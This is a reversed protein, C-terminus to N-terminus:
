RKSRAQAANQLSSHLSSHPTGGPSARSPRGSMFSAYDKLPHLAWSQFPMSAPGLVPVHVEVESVNEPARVLRARVLLKKLAPLLSLRAGAAM